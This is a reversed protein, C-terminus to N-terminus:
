QLEYLEIAVPTVRVWYGWLEFSVVISCDQDIADLADPDVAEQLLSPQAEPDVGVRCFLLLLQETTPIWRSRPDCADPSRRPRTPLLATNSRRPGVDGPTM